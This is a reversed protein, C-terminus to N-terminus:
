NSIDAKSWNNENFIDDKVKYWQNEQIAFQTDHRIRTSQSPAAVLFLRNAKDEPPVFFPTNTFPNTANEILDQTAISPTDANTMFRNDIRIDGHMNFDKVLLTAVYNQKYYPLNDASFPLSSHKGFIGTDHPAGHDSVIIIRTNDYINNDKLWNIFNTFRLIVSACGHYLTAIKWKSKGINTINEQPVYDPAQLFVTEHTAENDLLMFSSKKANTDTLEPLFDIEAYDDIFNSLKQIDEKSTWYEGHYIVQRMFLPSIKFLSFWIFNRKILTSEHNTKKMNHRKYWINSYVGQTSIRTIFPYPEYMKEIPYELYNEYPLDAVTVSFGANHFVIPMSLIAENHKQQLTKSTQKNIYYPTYDYGGFIGPTGLMTLHAPSVCNPYYVFGDYQSKLSKTENFIEPIFPSFLRDQMIIIVNPKDLSLHFIPDIKDKIQPVKMKAFAKQITITNKICVVCMSLCIAVLLAQLVNQWKKLLFYVIAVVVIIALINFVVYKIGGSFVQPQMFLLIRELPGYSLSFAFCDLTAIAIGFIMFLTLAKKIRSGFIAYFSTPWVIFAGIAQLLPVLLFILPSKYDDIYSFQMPESEILMSPIVAGCLVACSSAAIIFLGLRLHKNTDLVIFSNSMITSFVNKITSFFPLLIGIVILMVRFILKTRRFVLIAMLILSFALVTCLIQLIKKPSKLRYFVNKLLSFVNNMTWYIVLGAPSNYLLLLFITACAYIQVQERIGHGKSYIAGAVCNVLTMLIPLINICMGGIKLAGDQLSLDHVFGFPVYKLLELNSLFNYAAIFFPIQILLSISQRLAMLPNYCQEKYFAQLIMFREDGFFIAKIRSIMPSLRQQTQREAEQIKDAMAYLPLSLLSVIFSLGVISIGISKTTEFFLMFFFETMQVLPMIIIQYLVFLM